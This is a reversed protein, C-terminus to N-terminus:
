SAAGTAETRSPMLALLIAAPPFIVAAWMWGTASRHKATAVQRALFVALATVVFLILFIQAPLAGEAASPGDRVM